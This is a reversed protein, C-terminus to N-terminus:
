GRPNLVFTGSANVEPLYEKYFAQIEAEANLDNFVDPYIMQAMFISFAYDMMSRLSGHDVGYVRQNQVAKLRDWLSRKMFGDLRQLAEERSVMLGMRM